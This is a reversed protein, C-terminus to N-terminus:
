DLIIAVIPRVGWANVEAMSDFCLDIRKGKIDGGTDYAIAYGYGPIYLRTGLPIVDPDVAVVGREAKHGTATGPGGAGPEIGSYATSNLRIRRGATPEKAVQRATRARAVALQRTPRIVPATGVAVVQKVPASVLKEATVVPTSEVGQEVMVRSIRLRTGEAGSMIVRVTGKPLSADPHSETEFPVAIEETTVRAFSDAATIRMGAVLKTDLSPTVTPDVTPDAGAAVLADSVTTGVVRVDIVQEGLVVTVPVAHRVVVIMGDTVETNDRPTVVDGDALTIHTQSLLGSVDSSATRVHEIRGDVVITVQKKAWVFGTISLSLVVAPIIAAIIHQTKLSRASRTPRSRM